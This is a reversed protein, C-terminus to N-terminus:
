SNNSINRLSTKSQNQMKLVSFVKLKFYFCRIIFTFRFLKNLLYQKTTKLFNNIKINNKTVYSAYSVIGWPYTLTSQQM